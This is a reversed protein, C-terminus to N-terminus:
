RPGREEPPTGERQSQRELQWQRTLSRPEILQLMTRRGGVRLWTDAQNAARAYYHGSRRRSLPLNVLPQRCRDPSCQLCRKGIADRVTCQSANQERPTAKKAKIHKPNVKLPLKQQRPAFCTPCDCVLATADATQHLQRLSAAAPLM